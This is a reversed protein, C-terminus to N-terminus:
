RGPVVPEAIVWAGSGVAVAASGNEAKPGDPWGALPQWSAGGDTSALQAIDGLDGTAPDSPQGSYVLLGGVNDFSAAANNDLTLVLQWNAGDASRWIGTTPGDGPTSASADGVLVYSGDARTLWAVSDPLAAGTPLDGLARWDIGDQSVVLQVSDDVGVQRGLLMGDAPHVDFLGNSAGTTMTGQWDTGDTTTWAYAGSTRVAQDDGCNGIVVLRDPLAATGDIGLPCSADAGPIGLSPGDAVVSWTVADASTWVALHQAGRGDDSVGLVAVGGPYAAIATATVDPGSPEPLLTSDWHGGDKSHLVAPLVSSADFGLAAFGNSWSTVATLQGSDRGRELTRRWAVTEPPLLAAPVDQEAVADARWTVPKGNAEGIFLVGDPLVVASDAWAGHETGSWEPKTDTAGLDALTRWALGDASVAFSIKDRQAYSDGAIRQGDTAMPFTHYSGYDDAPALSWTEGDASTWLAGTKDGELSGVAILGDSGAYLERLETGSGQGTVTAAHWTAGDPSVWVAGKSGNGSEAGGGPGPPTGGTSGAILWGGPFPAVTGFHAKGFVTPDLSQSQWTSGDTSTWLHPQAFGRDGVAILGGPGSAFGTVEAGDFATSTPLRTWTRGDASTWFAIPLPQCRGGGEGSGTCREVGASGMAVLGTSTTVVQDIQAYGGARGALLTREWTSGDASIWAAASTRDSGQVAGVAVFGDGFPIVERMFGDPAPVPAHWALGGWDTPPATLTSPMASPAPGTPSPSAGFAGGSVLTAAVVAVLIGPISRM